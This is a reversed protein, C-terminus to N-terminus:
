RGLLWSGVALAVAIVGTLALIAQLTYKQSEVQRSFIIGWLGLAVITCLYFIALHHSDLSTTSDSM